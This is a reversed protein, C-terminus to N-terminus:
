SSFACAYKGDGKTSGTAVSRLRSGFCCDLNKDLVNEQVDWARVPRIVNGFDGFLFTRDHGIFNGAGYFPEIFAFAEAEDSAFAAWIHECMEAGNCHRAVFCQGFALANLENNGLALFAWLGLVDYSDLSCNVGLSLLRFRKSKKKGRIQGTVPKAPM